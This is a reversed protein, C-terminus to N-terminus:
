KDGTTATCFQTFFKLGQPTLSVHYELTMQVQITAFFSIWLKKLLASKSNQLFLRNGYYLVESDISVLIGYLKKQMTALIQKCHKKAVVVFLLANSSHTSHFNPLRCCRCATNQFKCTFLITHLIRVIFLTVNSLFEFLANNLLQRQPKWKRLLYM